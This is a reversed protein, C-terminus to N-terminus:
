SVFYNMNSHIFPLPLVKLAEEMSFTSDVPIEKIWGKEVWKSAIGANAGSPDNMVGKYDWGTGGLFRPWWNPILSKLFPNEITCFVGGVELYGASRDYLTMDGVCDIIANFPDSGPEARRQIL